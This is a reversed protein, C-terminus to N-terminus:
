VQYFTQRFSSSVSLPLIISPISSTNVSETPALDTGNVNQSEEVKDSSTPETAAAETVRTGVEEAQV